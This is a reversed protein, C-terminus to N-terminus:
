GDGDGTAEDAAAAAAAAANSSSAATAAAANSEAENIIRILEEDFYERMQQISFMPAPELYHGCTRVPVYGGTSYGLRDFLALIANDRRAMGNNTYWEEPKTNSTIVVTTYMAPRNAGKVELSMPYPDLFQLMRQLQIQGCFEEFVMVDSLPNQFWIGNNGVICRGHGPFHKQIAFSKGSGPPGIMTIIKLEPRYPGLVDTTLEKFAAIFGPQMLTISPIDRPRKYSEKVIDLEEAADQLMEAKKKPEPRSPLQGIEVRLGGTYTEEKRCYDRAEQDKGRAIEWHARQNIHNKLWTLKKKNKLYIFGQWHLTGNEGREEQLILYQTVGIVDDSEWFKDSDTPNNITFCWRKGEM